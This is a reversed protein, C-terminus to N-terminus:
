VNKSRTERTKRRAGSQEERNPLTRLLLTRAYFGRPKRIAKGNVIKVFKDGDNTNFKKENRRLLLEAPRCHVWDNQQSPAGCGTCATTATHEQGRRFHAEDNTKMFSGNTNSHARTHVYTRVHTRGVLEYVAISLTRACTLVVTASL